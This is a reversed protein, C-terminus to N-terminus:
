SRRRVDSARLLGARRHAAHVVGDRVYPAVEDRLVRQLGEDLGGLDARPLARLWDEVAEELRAAFLAPTTTRALAALDDFERLPYGGIREISDRDYGSFRNRYLWIEGVSVLMGLAYNNRVMYDRVGDESSTLSEPRSKVEVVVYPETTDRATVVIDPEFM